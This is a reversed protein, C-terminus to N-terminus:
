GSSSQVTRMNHWRTRMCHMMRQNCGTCTVVPSQLSMCVVVDWSYWLTVQTFTCIKPRLYILKQHVCSLTQWNREFYNSRLLQKLDIPTLVKTYVHTSFVNLDSFTTILDCLSTASVSFVNRCFREALAPVNNCCCLGSLLIDQFMLLENVNENKKGKYNGWNSLSRNRGAWDIPKEHTWKSDNAPSDRWKVAAHHCYNLPHSRVIHRNYAEVRGRGHSLCWGPSGLDM